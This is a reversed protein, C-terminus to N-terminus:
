VLKGCHLLNRHTQQSKTAGGMNRWVVAAIARLSNMLYFLTSVLFGIKLLFIRILAIRAWILQCIHACSLFGWLSRHRDLVKGFASGQARRREVLSWVQSRQAHRVRMRYQEPELAPANHLETTAAVLYVRFNWNLTKTQVCEFFGELGWVLLAEVRKGAVRLQSHSDFGQCKRCIM